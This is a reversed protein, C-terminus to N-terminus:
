VFLDACAELDGGVGRAEEAVPLEGGTDPGVRCLGCAERHVPIGPLDERLFLSEVPVNARFVTVGREDIEVADIELLRQESAGVVEADYEMEVRADVADVESGGGDVGEGRGALECPVQDDRRVPQPRFTPLANFPPFVLGKRRAVQRIPNHQVCLLNPCLIRIEPRPNFIRLTMEPYAGPSM